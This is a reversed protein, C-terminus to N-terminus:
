AMHMGGNVALTEGTVYAAAASALYLVAWAVDEPSGLRALPIRELLQARAPDPIARTMDTDIFGPAVVNVTINRSAVEAALSKAFGVLGAKASAYSTQGANGTQGVVSGICIIRGRRAKMMGRLVAKSLRFVAALNTDLVLQWDEEKMRLVLGDRTIGANNVLVGVAGEHSEIDAVVATTREPSTVDLVLGRGPLGAAALAGQISAVGQESTATGIVRAGADALALLCARGIGRSAGTVLAVEGDLRFPAAATSM